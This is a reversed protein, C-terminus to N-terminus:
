EVVLERLSASIQNISAEPDQSIQSIITAEEALLEPWDNNPLQGKKQTSWRHVAAAKYALDTYAPNSLATLNNAIAKASKLNNVTILAYILMHQHWTMASIVEPNVGTSRSIEIIAQEKTKISM